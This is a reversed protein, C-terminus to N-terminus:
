AEYTVFSIDGREGYTMTTGEIPTGADRYDNYVMKAETFAPSASKNGLKVQDGPQFEAPSTMPINGVNSTQQTRQAGQTGKALDTKSIFPLGNISM